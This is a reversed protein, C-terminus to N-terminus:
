ESGALADHERRAARILDSVEAGKRRWYPRERRQFYEISFLDDYALMLYRSNPRDRVNELQVAFALVLRNGPRDSPDDSDAMRGDSEFESRASERGAVEQTVGEARDAALYLYGWDIRLDDGRKALMPQERSGMRLAPLGGIRYRSAMVAEDPTNVVLDAGAEVYFSVQHMAGDTATARLELYTLPRSLVELDDPLAPTFFTLGIAVGSGSFEYITRTPLVEVSKQDLAPIPQRDRGMLRLTKGDIRVLANLSNPKGTWHKVGEANLRDSMSWMSFYPDHAVLPVAPPRMPGPAQAWSMACFGAALIIRLRM